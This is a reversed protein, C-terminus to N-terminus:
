IYILKHPFFFLTVFAFADLGFVDLGIVGLLDALIFSM